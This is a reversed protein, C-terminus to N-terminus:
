TTRFKLEPENTHLRVYMLAYTHTVNDHKSIKIVIHAYFHCHFAFSFSNKFFNNAMMLAASVLVMVVVCGCGCIGVIIVIDVPTVFEM